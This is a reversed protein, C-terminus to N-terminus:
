RPGAPYPCPQVNGPEAGASLGAVTAADLVAEIRGRVRSATKPKEAWIPDLVQVVLGTDIASVPLEGLTLYVYTALTNEIEAPAERQALGGPEKRLVRHRL